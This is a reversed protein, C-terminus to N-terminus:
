FAGEPNSNYVPCAHSVSCYAECRRYTKPRHEVWHDKRGQIASEAEDLDSYLKIASKRDKKMLAYSAPTAWREVDTCPPPEPNQHAAVREELYAQAEEIPWVPIDLVAVQAEPYNDSYVKSPMWDKFIAVIQLQEVRYREDGTEDAKKHALLRLLNLQQEWEVKGGNIAAWVSTIKYDSLVRDAICDFAGSVVWGGVNTYLREEAMEDGQTGARDIIAHGISGLFAPIRQSVDEIRKVKGMLNRQYPPTIIQTVSIDSNGRTYPDNLIARVLQPPLNYKNTWEIQMM